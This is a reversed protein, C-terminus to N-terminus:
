ICDFVGSGASYQISGADHVTMYATFICKESAQEINNKKVRLACLM